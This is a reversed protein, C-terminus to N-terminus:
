ALVATSEPVGDLFAYAYSQQGPVPTKDFCGIFREHSVPFQNLRSDYM